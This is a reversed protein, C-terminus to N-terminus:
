GAADPLAERRAGSVLSMFQDSHEKQQATQQAVADHVGQAQRGADWAGLMNWAFACDWATGARITEGTAPDEVNIPMSRYLLCQECTHGM